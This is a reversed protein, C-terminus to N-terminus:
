DYQYLILMPSYPFIPCEISGAYRLIFRIYYNWYFHFINLMIFDEKIVRQIVIRVGSIMIVWEFATDECLM